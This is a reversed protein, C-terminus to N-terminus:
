VPARPGLPFFACRAVLANRSPIKRVMFQLHPRDRRAPPFRRFERPCSISLPYDPTGIRRHPDTSGALDIAGGSNWYDQWFDRSASQAEEVTPLTEVGPKSSFACILGISGAEKAPTLLFQHRSEQTLQATGEWRIAVEYVDADLQRHFRAAAGATTMTTQHADPHDWDAANVAPSGGPFALCLRLRGTAILDSIVKTAIADRGGPCCTEVTVPVGDFDFRSTLIGTWLDLTQHIKTLDSAKAASGDAHRLDLGVRGLHLRHPNERMWNFLEEQGKSKTLYGVKRGYTDYDTYRVQDPNLGAPLPRSHWGWQSQTCLPIGEEYAEPFTQLGTIDAGFAFEGNGVSLPSRPNLSELIVNHRSVVARRDIRLPADAAPASHVPFAAMMIAVLILITRMM